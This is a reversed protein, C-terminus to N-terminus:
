DVRDQRKRKDQNYTYDDKPTKEPKYTNFKTKKNKSQINKSRINEIPKEEHRFSREPEKVRQAAEFWDDTSKSSLEDEYWKSDKTSNKLHVLTTSEKKEKSSKRTVKKRPINIEYCDVCVLDHKEDRYAISKEIIMQNCRSCHDRM